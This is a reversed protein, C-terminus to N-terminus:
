NQAAAQIAKRAWSSSQAGVIWKSSWWRARTVGLDRAATLATTMAEEPSHGPWRQEYAALGIATLATAPAGTTRARALALAQMRGPGLESDWLVAAGSRENVSYAQPLLLDVHPAVLAESSNERHYPYTDLEVRRGRAVRRLVAVLEAAAEAMSKFGTLLKADWNGECDVEVAVPNCVDVLVTMDRELQVLQARDPRPWCTLIVDVGAGRLADAATAFAAQKARLKWGPSSRPANMSNVMLAAETLGLARYKAAYDDTISTVADDVWTGLILTTSCQNPTAASM